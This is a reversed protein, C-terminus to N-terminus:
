TGCRAESRLQALLRQIGGEWGAEYNSPFPAGARLLGGAARLCPRGFDSDPSPLGLAEALKGAEIWEWEPLCLGLSFSWERQLASAVVISVLILRRAPDDEPLAQATAQATPVAEPHRLFLVSLADRLRAEPAHALDLVLSALSGENLDRVAAPGQELGAGGMLYRIDHAALRAVLDDWAADTSAGTTM